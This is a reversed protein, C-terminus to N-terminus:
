VSTPNADEFLFVIRFNKGIDQMHSLAKIVQVNKHADGTAEGLYPAFAAMANQVFNDNITAVFETGSFDVACNSEQLAKIFVAASGFNEKWNILGFNAQLIKEANKQGRDVRAIGFAMPERYGEQSTVEAVLAKFADTSAITEIAM